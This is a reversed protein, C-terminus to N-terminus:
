EKESPEWALTVIARVEGTGKCDPCEITHSDRNDAWFWGRGNCYSCTQPHLAFMETCIRGPPDVEIIQKKKSM